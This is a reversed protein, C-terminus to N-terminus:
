QSKFNFFSSFRASLSARTGQSNERQLESIRSALQKESLFSARRATIQDALISRYVEPVSIALVKQRTLETMVEVPLKGKNILNVLEPHTLCNEINSM